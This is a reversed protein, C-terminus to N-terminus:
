VDINWQLQGGGGMRGEEEGLMKRHRQVLVKYNCYFLIIQDIILPCFHKMGVLLAHNNAGQMNCSNVHIQLM